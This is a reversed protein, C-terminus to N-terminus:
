TALKFIHDGKRCREGVKIGVETGRQAGDVSEHEIQISEVQQSFDTPHGRIRIRDGVALSGGLRLAVVGVKAFYDEVGGIEKGEAEDTAASKRGFLRSLFGM